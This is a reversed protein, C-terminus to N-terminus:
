EIDKNSMWLYAARFTTICYNLQQESYRRYHLFTLVPVFILAIILISQYSMILHYILLLELLSLALTMSRCYYSIAYQRDITLNSSPMFDCVIRSSFSFIEFASIEPVNLQTAIQKKLNDKFTLSEFARLIHQKKLLAEIRTIIYAATYVSHGIIYSLIFFIVPKEVPGIQQFWEVEKALDEISLFGFYTLLSGPILYILLDFFHVSFNGKM